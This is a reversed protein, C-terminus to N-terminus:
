RASALISIAGSKSGNLATEREMLRQAKSAPVAATEGLCRVESLFYASGYQKFVVVGLNDDQNTGNAAAVAAIAQGTGDNRISWANESLKAFTYDGAALTTHSVTFDFPIHAKVMADQAFASAAGGAFTLVLAALLVFTKKM